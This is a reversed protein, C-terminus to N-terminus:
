GPPPSPTCARGRDPRGAAVSEAAGARRGRGQATREGAGRPGRSRAVIVSIRGGSRITHMVTSMLFVLSLLATTGIIADTLSDDGRPPRASEFSERVGPPDDLDGLLGVLVLSPVLVMLPMGVLQLRAFQLRRASDPPQPPGADCTGTNM